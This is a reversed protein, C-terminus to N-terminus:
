NGKPCWWCMLVYRRLQKGECIEAAGARLESDQDANEGELRGDM